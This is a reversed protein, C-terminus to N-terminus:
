PQVGQQDYVRQADLLALAEADTAGQALFDALAMLEREQATPLLAQAYVRLEDQTAPDLLLEDAEILVPPQHRRPPQWSAWRQLAALPPPPNHAALQTCAFAVPDAFRACLGPHDIVAQWAAILALPVGALARRNRIGMTQLLADCAPDLTSPCSSTTPQTPLEATAEETQREACARYYGPVIGRTPDREIRAARSQWVLIQERGYQQQIHLLDLWEGPAISRGVNLRQHQQRVAPDLLPLPTNHSGGDMSSEDPPPNTSEHSWSSWPNWANPSVSEDIDTEQREAAAFTSQEPPPDDSGIASGSVSGSVSGNAQQAIGATSLHRWGAQSPQVAVIHDGETILLAGRAARTLLTPLADPTLPEHALTLGLQNLRETAAPLSLLCLAYAGIDALDLLPRAFSRVILAPRRGPQPDLRGLYTDFLAVPLRRIRITDPKMAIAGDQYWPLTTGSATRGWTPCLQRKVTGSGISQVWGDAVLRAIRRMIATAVPTDGGAWAALDAPSLPIPGHQAIACRAIALYVGLALPDYAYRRLLQDPVRVYPQPRETTPQASPGNPVRGNQTRYEM